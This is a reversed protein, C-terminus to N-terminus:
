RLVRNLLAALRVGALTLRQEMVPVFQQGYSSSLAREPYFGPMQVIQCSEEAARSALSDSLDPALPIRLLRRSMAQPSENLSRILGFDWLAHLNTGDGFARLQYTNGGRDDAHGAHLPQHVDAVFHVVYKLALLRERDPARSALVEAQRNIAEVVCQGDPCDRKADYRCSNRPFNVYHWSATPPDRNEDAWTAISALTAGPELSLLRDVEARAPASLRALAITAVVQHGQAGWAMVRLPAALFAAIFAACLFRFATLPTMSTVCTVIWRLVTERKPTSRYPSKSVDQAMM